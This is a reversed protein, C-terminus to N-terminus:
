SELLEAAVERIREVARSQLLPGVSVRAVGIEALEKVSLEGKLVNLRGDFAEVLRTVEDRKVGGRGSGGWVFVMTAGAALYAKGREMVEALEGGKVLIDCRANVVFDPVNLAKATSLVCAIRGAAESVTYFKGSRSDFDELNVGVVGAGTIFETVIQELKDGYGDRIDISLPKGFPKVMKGIIKASRLLEDLPLEDDTTGAAEAIAYSGTAIAKSSSLSAVAKASPADHINAIILPTGPLHLSKFTQALANLLNAM